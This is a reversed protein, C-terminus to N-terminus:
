PKAQAAARITELDTPAAPDFTKPPPEFNVVQDTFEIDTYDGNTEHLVVRRTSQLDPALHIEIAAMMKRMAENRPVLTIVLSDVGNTLTAAYAGRDSAYRGDMVGAIQSMVNQLADGLGLELKKWHEDTWEFQAVSAGDSVLISKYPVTTEWRIRGPKQFCLYGESRLPENFLSLHREQVFKTFVTRARALASGAQALTPPPNTQAGAGAPALLLVTLIIEFMRKM